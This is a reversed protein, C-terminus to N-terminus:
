RHIQWVKYDEVPQHAKSSEDVCLNIVPIESYNNPSRVNVILRMADDLFTIGLISVEDGRVESSIRVDDCIRSEVPYDLRDDLYEEWRELCARRDSLEVEGLVKLIREGQEGFGYWRYQELIEEKKRQVQKETDRAQDSRVDSAYLRISHWDLGDRESNVIYDHPMQELTRSDWAITLLSKGNETESIELIRGQWGSIDVSADGPHDTDDKVSVTDGVDFSSM